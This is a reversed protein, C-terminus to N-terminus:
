NDSSAVTLCATPQKAEKRTRRQSRQGRQSCNAWKTPYTDKTMYSHDLTHTYFLGQHERFRMTPTQVTPTNIISQRIEHHKQEQKHQKRVKRCVALGPRSVGLVVRTSDLVTLEVRTTCEALPSSGASTSLGCAAALLVANFSGVVSADGAVFSAGCTM